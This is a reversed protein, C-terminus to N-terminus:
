LPHGFKLIEVQETRYIDVILAFAQCRQAAEGRQLYELNAASGYSVVTKGVELVERIQFRQFDTLCEDSVVPETECYAAVVM